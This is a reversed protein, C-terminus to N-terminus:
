KAEEPKNTAKVTKEEKAELVEPNDILDFLTHAKDAAVIQKVEEETLEDIVKSIVIKAPRANKVPNKFAVTYKSGKHREKIQIKAM